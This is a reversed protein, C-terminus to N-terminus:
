IADEHARLDADRGQGNGSADHTIAAHWHSLAAASSITHHLAKERNGTIASRLAKGALYGVLWYWHEASKERDHPTGWRERQHAAERKVGELFDATEPSNILSNLRSNEAQLACVELGLREVEKIHEAIIHPVVTISGDPGLNVGHNRNLLKEISDISIPRTLENM